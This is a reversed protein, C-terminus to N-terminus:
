SVQVMMAAAGPLGGGLARKGAARLIEDLSKQEKKEGTHPHEEHSNKNLQLHEVNKGTSLHSLMDRASQRRRLVDANKRNIEGRLGRVEAELAERSRHVSWTLM